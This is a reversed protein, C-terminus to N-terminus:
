QAIALNSGDRLLSLWAQGVYNGVIVGCADIAFQAFLSPQGDNDLDAAHLKFLVNNCDDYSPHRFPIHLQRHQFSSLPQAPARV